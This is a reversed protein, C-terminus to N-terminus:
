GGFVKVLGAGVPGAALAAGTLLHRWKYLDAVQTELREVRAPVERHEELVKRVDERLGVVEEYLDNTTIVKVVQPDAM